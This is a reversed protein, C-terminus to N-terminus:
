GFSWDELGTTFMIRFSKRANSVPGADASEVLSLGGLVWICSRWSGHLFLFALGLIFVDADYM